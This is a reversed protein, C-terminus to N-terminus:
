WPHVYTEVGSGGGWRRAMIVTSGLFGKQGEILVDLLRVGFIKAVCSGM